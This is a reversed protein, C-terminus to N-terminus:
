ALADILALLGDVSEAASQRLTEIHVEPSVPPEYPTQQGTLGSMRGAKSRAYLGKPDRRACEELPTDVFVEIFPLGAKDHLRRALDRDARFPSVLAVIAIGGADAFFRAVHGVRRVNEARSAADFGLDGSLGHRVNDGDLLYALRGRQVLAQELATSITSKGSAPLGTLWITAGTAGLHGWRETRDLKGRHWVVDPSRQEDETVGVRAERVLGAAVTDHSLEDILIFAGTTQNREYPDAVVPTALRLTVRGVENTRLEVADGRQEGDVDYAYHLERATARVRRTTHKLLYRRGATLPDEGLWVLTAEVERAAVPLHDRSVIMDGRSVDLHDELVVTAELPGRVADIEGDFHDIRAIRTHEGSPLVTVEDGSKLLGGSVQGALGRYTGQRVIWQVPFRLPHREAHERPPVQELAEVLTPGHYSAIRTSRLVVNDGDVASVPIVLASALELRGSLEDVVSVLEHFPADDGPELLDIKNAAIIVQDVGLLHALQIHRRSQETLGATVDVVLVLLDAKSAGTVMNRTYRLHGPTDALVFGRQPTSFYRHAVDITLGMEREDRLGDTVFALEGTSVEAVQDSYLDESDLLLRGILSSKGHDVSGGIVVRLLDQHNYGRNPM